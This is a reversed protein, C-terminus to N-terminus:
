TRGPVAEAREPRRLRGRQGAHQRHARRQRAQNEPSTLCELAQIAADKHDSFESVGIGIGGYPPRSEEGEVTEPYRTWGIDNVITRAPLRRGNLIYTWNVM